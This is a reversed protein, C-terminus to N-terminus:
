IVDMKAGRGWGGAQQGTGFRAGSVAGSPPAPAAVPLAHGLIAGLAREKVRPPDRNTPKEFNLFNPRAHISVLKALVPIM